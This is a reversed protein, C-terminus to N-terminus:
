SKLQKGRKGHIETPRKERHYLRWRVGRHRGGQLLCGFLDKEERRSNRRRGTRFRRIKQGTGGAWNTKKSEVPTKISALTKGGPRSGKELRLRM